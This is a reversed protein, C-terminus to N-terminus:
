RARSEEVAAGVNPEAGQDVESKAVGIKGALFAATIEFPGLSMRHDLQWFGYYSPLVLLVCVITSIAAGSMYWFNTEFHVTDAYISAPYWDLKTYNNNPDLSSVDTALGFMISNIKEILGPDIFKSGPGITSTGVLDRGGELPDSYNYTCSGKVPLNTLYSQASGNQHITYSTTNDVKSLHASGGIYTQLGLALGGFTSNGYYTNDPSLVAYPFDSLNLTKRVAFYNQQKESENFGYSTLPDATYNYPDPGICATWTEMDGRQSLEIPYNVVAARLRCTKRKLISPCGSGVHDSLDEESVTHVVEMIIYDTNNIWATPGDPVSGAVGHHVNFSIDFLTQTNPATTNATSPFTLTSADIRETTPELCDFQLGAGDMSVYALSGKHYDSISTNGIIPSNAGNFSTNFTEFQNPFVGGGTQWIELDQNFWDQLGYGDLSSFAGMGTSPFTQNIYGRVLNQEQGLWDVETYTGIAKQFLTSDLM